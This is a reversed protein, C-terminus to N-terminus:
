SLRIDRKERKQGKGILTYKSEYLQVYVGFACIIPLMNYSVPTTSHLSLKEAASHHNEALTSVLPPLTFSVSVHRHKTGVSFEGVNRQPRTLFLLSCIRTKKEEKRIIIIMAGYQQYHYM